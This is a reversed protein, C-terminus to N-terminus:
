YQVRYTLDCGAVRAIPETYYPEEEPKIASAYAEIRFRERVRTAEGAAVSNITVLPRQGRLCQLM